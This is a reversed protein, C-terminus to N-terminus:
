QFIHMVKQSFPPHIHLNMEHIEVFNEGKGKRQFFTMTPTGNEDWVEFRQLVGALWNEIYLKGKNNGFVEIHKQIEIFKNQFDKYEETNGTKFSFMKDDPCKFVYVNYKDTLSFGTVKHFDSLNMFDNKENKKIINM